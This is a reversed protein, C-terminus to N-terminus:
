CRNGKQKGVSHKIQVGGATKSFYQMPITCHAYVIRHVRWECLCPVRCSCLCLVIRRIWGLNNREDASSKELSQKSKKLTVTEDANINERSLPNFLSEWWWIMPKVSVDRNRLTHCLCLSKRKNKQIIVGRRLWINSNVTMHAPPGTSWPLQLWFYDSSLSGPVPLSSGRCQTQQSHSYTFM